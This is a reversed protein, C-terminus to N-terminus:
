AVQNLALSARPQQQQSEELIQEQYEKLSEMTQKLLEAESDTELESPQSASEVQQGFLNDFFSNTTSFFDNLGQQTDEGFQTFFDSGFGFEEAVQGYDEQLSTFFDNLQTSIMSQANDLLAQTATFFGDTNDPSNNIVNSAASLFGALLQDGDESEAMESVQQNFSDLSEGSISIRMSFERALEGAVGSVQGGLDGGYQAGVSAAVHTAENYFIQAQYDRGTISQEFEVLTDQSISTYYGAQAQLDGFSSDYSSLETISASRSEAFGVELDLDFSGDARLQLDISAEFRGDESVIIQKTTGNTNGNSANKLAQDIADQAFEQIEVKDEKDKQRNIGEEEDSLGQTKQPSNANSLLSPTNQNGVLSNLLGSKANSNLGQLPRNQTGGLQQGNMFGGIGGGGFLESVNQGFLSVM